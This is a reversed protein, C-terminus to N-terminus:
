RRSGEVLSEYRVDEGNGSRETAEGGALRGARVSQGTDDGSVPTPPTGDTVPEKDTLKARWIVMLRMKNHTNLCHRTGVREVDGKKELPKLRPSISWPHVNLIRAIEIAAFSRPYVAHLYDSVIQEMKTRRIREEADRSTKPDTPRTHAETWSFLDDDDDDDPM